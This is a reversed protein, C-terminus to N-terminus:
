RLVSSLSCRTTPGNMPDAKRWAAERSGVRAYPLDRAASAGELVSNTVSDWAFLSGMRSGDCLNGNATARDRLACSACEHSSAPVSFWLGPL